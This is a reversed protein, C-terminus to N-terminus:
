MIYSQVAVNTCLVGERGKEWQTPNSDRIYEFYTSFAARARELTEIDTAGSLPGLEYNTKDMIVRGILGSRRIAQKLAPITLCTRSTSAIGQQPIRNYFPYGVDSNLNNILRSAIAGIRESPIASGWKLEGELDDLLHKPVSKQEHNITVFMHAEEAKALKEFAIVVVNADLFSDEIPSFGYLRHQGDIIWASRYKDPLYLTGFAVDATDDKSIQDFRVNRVFNILINTPFFGGERIFKGINRM